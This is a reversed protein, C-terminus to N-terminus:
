ISYYVFSTDIFIMQLLFGQICFIGPVLLPISIKLDCNRSRNSYIGHKFSKILLSYGLSPHFSVVCGRVTGKTRELAIFKLEFVVNLVVDIFDFLKSSFFFFIVNTM